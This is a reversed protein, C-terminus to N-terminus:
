PSTHPKRDGFAPFRATERDCEFSGAASTEAREIRLLDWLCGIMAAWEDEQATAQAEFGHVLLSVNRSKPRLAAAGDAFKLLEPGLPVGKRKLLRAVFERSAKLTGDCNRDPLKSRKKKCDKVLSFVGPEDPPVRESDIGLDFLSTQGILELVRYARVLADEYQDHAVRRETNSLLDVTLRRLWVAMATHDSREPRNCLSKVWQAVADTPCLRRWAAPLDGAQPIGEETAARYDLRDWAALFRVLRRMSRLTVPDPLAATFAAAFPSDPDPLLDLAAGFSGREVLGRAQDVQRHSLAVVTTTEGIVETGATVAGRQDRSGFIYRLKPINHRVGALVLAASMAKTGRTFDVVIDDSAFGDRLLREIEDDFVTYCADADNEDGDKSLPRISIPSGTLRRRMEEANEGTLASPLLVVADWTGDTISKKLPTFLSTELADINGTGVTLMLARSM